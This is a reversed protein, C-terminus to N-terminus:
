PVHKVLFQMAYDLVSYGNQIAHPMLGKILNEM